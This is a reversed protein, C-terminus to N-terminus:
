GAPMTITCSNLTVLQGNTLSTSSINFQQGSTGVTGDIRYGNSDELRGWGATGSASATAQYPAYFSDLSMSGSSPSAFYVNSIQLLLTGSPSSDASAPQSGTYIRLTWPGSQISSLFNNRVTTNLRTPM